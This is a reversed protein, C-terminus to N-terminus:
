GQAASYLLLTRRRKGNGAGKAPRLLEQLDDFAALWRRVHVALNRSEVAFALLARERPQLDNFDIM